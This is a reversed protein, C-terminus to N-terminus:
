GPVMQLFPTSGHESHIKIFLFFFSLICVLYDPDSLMSLIFNIANQPFKLRFIWFLFEHLLTDCRFIWFIPIKHPWLPGSWSKWSSSMEWRMYEETDKMEYDFAHILKKDLLALLDRQFESKTRWDLNVINHYFLSRLANRGLERQEERGENTEQENFLDESTEETLYRYLEPDTLIRTMTNRM